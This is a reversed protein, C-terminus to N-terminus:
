LTDEAYYEIGKGIIMGTLIGLLGGIFGLLGSEILFITLIDRRQAGVAKMVGIERTRELVSTYMTNAIGIAGVLLSIAAVGVLFATIIDLITGFSSLLEEPTLITFDQNARDVNRVNRLRKEVRLAVNNLEQPSNTQVIIQDIRDTINFLERFEGLHMYILRDDNPNGLSKLVTRVEFEQGNILIKDGANLPHEFLNNHKYQSGIMVDRTDGKHILRGEEAKYAEIEEFVASKEEPLGIVPVYRRQSKVKVEANAATWYSVDKVGSVKEVADVDSISLSVAGGSGPGAIQGRPFIFFKDTGLVRFQEEVAKELGLSLSVLLFLTAIAILIGLLTLFSRLKRKKLNRLALTLYDTIM